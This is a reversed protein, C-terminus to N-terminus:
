RVLVTLDQAGAGAAESRQGRNATNAQNGGDESLAHRSLANLHFEINAARGPTTTTIGGIDLGDNIHQAFGTDFDRVIAHM